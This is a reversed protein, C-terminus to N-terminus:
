KKVEFWYMSGNLMTVIIVNDYSFDVCDVDNIVSTRLLYDLCLNMNDYSKCIIKKM